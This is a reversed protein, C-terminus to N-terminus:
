AQQASAATVVRARRPIAALPWTPLVSSGWTANTVGAFSGYWAFVATLLGVYGGLKDWGTSKAFAGITLFLFTVTLAAFVALVVGNTRLAAITMYATFICWAMLFLGTAKYVDSAPLGGAIYRVYAAYALWFSGFSTFALAGFTNRNKFEWMGALLQAIGGYFLALPLVVLLLKQDSIIRANFVSLVFTTMAFAALGLPAPDAVAPLM